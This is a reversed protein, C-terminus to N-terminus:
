PLLGGAFVNQAMVIILFVACQFATVEDSRATIPNWGARDLILFSLLTVVALSLFIMALRRVLHM